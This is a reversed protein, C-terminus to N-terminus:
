TETRLENLKVNEYQREKVSNIISNGAQSLEISSGANKHATKYKNLEAIDLKIALSADFEYLNNLAVIYKNLRIIEREGAIQTPKTEEKLEIYVRGVFHNIASYLSYIGNNFEDDSLTSRVLDARQLYENIENIDILSINDEFIPVPIMDSLKRALSNIQNLGDELHNLLEHDPKLSGNTMLDPYLADHATRLSKFMKGFEKDSLESKFRDLHLFYNAFKNQEGQIEMAVLTLESRHNAIAVAGLPFALSMIVLPVKFYSYATEINVSNWIGMSLNDMIFIILMLLVGIGLPIGVALQFLPLNLLKKNNNM